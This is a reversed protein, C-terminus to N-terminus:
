NREPNFLLKKYFAGLQKQLEEAESVLEEYVSSDALPCEERATDFCAVTEHLSGLSNGIYRAFDKKTPKGSGEAINLVISLVARRLQHRLYGFEGPWERSLFITKRQLQKALQYVRLNFFRFM